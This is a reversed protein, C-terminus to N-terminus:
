VLGTYWNSEARGSQGPIDFSMINPQINARKIDGKADRAVAFVTQSPEREYSPALEIALAFRLAKLYGPPMVLSTALSAVSNFQGDIQLTVPLADSPTPYFKLRGLPFENIYVVKEPTQQQVDPEMVLDYEEKTWTSFPFRTGAYLTYGGGVRVPRTTDFDGGSGITYEAQGPVFTFTQDQAGWVTLNETSWNELLDNLTRLAANSEDASLTEGQAIAGILLLSDKILQDATIPSPM